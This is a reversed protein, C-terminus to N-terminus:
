CTFTATRSDKDSTFDVSASLVSVQRALLVAELAAIIRLECGSSMAMKRLVVLAQDIRLPEKANYGVTLFGFEELLEGVRHKIDVPLATQGATQSRWELEMFVDRALHRGLVDLPASSGVIPLISGPPTEAVQVLTRDFHNDLQTSGRTQRSVAFLPVCFSGGILITIAFPLWGILLAQRAVVVNLAILLAVCVLGGLRGRYGKFVTIIVCEHGSSTRANAMSLPVRDSVETM